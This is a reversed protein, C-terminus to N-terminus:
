IKQFQYVQQISFNCRTLAEELIFQVLSFTVLYFCSIVTKLLITSICQGSISMICQLKHIFGDVMLEWRSRCISSLRLVCLQSWNMMVKRAMNASCPLIPSKTFCCSCGPLFLGGGAGEVGRLEFHTIYSKYPAIDFFYLHFLSPRPPCFEVITAQLKRFM